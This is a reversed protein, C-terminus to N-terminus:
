VLRKVLAQKLKTYPPYAIKPDPKTPKSLVPKRHSMAEFSWRGHYDGMGSEGVGGFPLYPNALHWITANVCVGGSSTRSVVEDQVERKGSFVYLALPKERENVYRIADDVGRVRLVPLIPGFIEERLIESGERLNRMLTPALYRGERDGEGGFVIEGDGLLKTLRDHHRENVIRAYDSSQSPDEGYFEKVTEQLKGVLEAEISEHALVYDPAVCTQGANLWKGWAIRRAAVDLDASEDVICPSKGGLELTVPTLHKSAAEMVIRGVTANGTYFIHDFREDLLAQTELVGGEVIEICEPDLHKPVLRALAASTHPTVESPKLVVCNGAAIAGVAPALLLQVPYNWPAIVLVVGRPERVIRARGPKQNLPVKVREPRTWKKLSKRALKAESVTFAVDATLAELAPKGLDAALAELLEERGETCLAEIGRLQEERWALPRTKGSAFARRLQEVRGPILDVNTHPAPLETAASM